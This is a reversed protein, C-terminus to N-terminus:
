VGACTRERLRRGERVGQRLRTCAPQPLWTWSGIRGSNRTITVSARLVRDLHRREYVLVHDLCESRVSKVYWEAFASAMGALYMLWGAVAFFGDM